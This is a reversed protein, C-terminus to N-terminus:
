KYEWLFLFMRNYIEFKTNQIIFATVHLTIIIVSYKLLIVFEYLCRQLGGKGRARIKRKRVSVYPAAVRIYVNIYVHRSSKLAFHKIYFNAQLGRVHKAVRKDFCKYINIRHTYIYVNIYQKGQIYNIMLHKYPRM